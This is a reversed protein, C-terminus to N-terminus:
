FIIKKGDGKVTRRNKKIFESEQESNDPCALFTAAAKVFYKYNRASQALIQIM